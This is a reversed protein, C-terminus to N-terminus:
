CMVMGGNVHITQGTIYSGADSVLFLVASAVEESTGMRGMPISNLINERQKEPLVGTMPTDIFGPAICNVTIGKSAFEQAFSKSMGIIGAKSASYNVQGVNGTVGVVSSINVIRGKKNKLMARCASRNIRFVSTLNVEIVRAWDEDTMRLSLKDLTIGASCVVGDVIGSLLESAKDVIANTEAADLLNCQLIHVEGQCASASEQLAEYRTGSLCLKAGAKSLMVSIARGIGGSAGVVLFRRNSLDFM